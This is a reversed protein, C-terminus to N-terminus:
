LAMTFTPWSTGRPCCSCTRSCRSCWCRVMLHAFMTALAYVGVGVAIWITATRWSKAAKEHREAEQQFYIAQQSVGQEAAVKRVEDLLDKGTAADKRLQAVISDTEKKIAAIADRGDKELRGLDATRAAGYSVYPQLTPWIADYYTTLQQILAARQQGPNQASQMDFALIQQFYAIVQDIHQKLQNLQGVPFDDLSKQPIRRFLDVLRAGPGVAAAFNLKGLDDARELTSVDFDQLKLLQARTNDLEPSAM